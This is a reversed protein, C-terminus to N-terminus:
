FTANPTAYTNTAMAVYKKRKLYHRVAAPDRVFYDPITGREHTRVSFM